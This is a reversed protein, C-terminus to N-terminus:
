ARQALTTPSIAFCMDRRGSIPVPASRATRTPTALWTTHLCIANPDSSRVGCFGPTAPTGNVTWDFMVKNDSTRARAHGVVVAIKTTPNYFYDCREADPRVRERRRSSRQIRRKPPRDGTHRRSHGPGSSTRPGRPAAPLHGRLRCTGVASSSGSLTADGAGANRASNRQDRLRGIRRRRAPRLRDGAPRQGQLRREARADHVRHDRVQGPYGDGCPVITGIKDIQPRLRERAHARNARSVPVRHKCNVGNMRDNLDQWNDTAHGTMSCVYTPGPEALPLPSGFNNLIYDGRDVSRWSLQLQQPRHVDWQDLNLFGWNPARDGRRRQQVLLQVDQGSRSTPVDCPGPVSEVRARDAGRQGGGLPGWAATAATTM